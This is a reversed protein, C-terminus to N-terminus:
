WSSTRQGPRYLSKRHKAVIGELGMQGSLQFFAKGQGEIHECLKVRPLDPLVKPLLAKRSELPVGCLDYGDLYLVDFVYYALQGGHRPFNQLWEFRAIGREDLVVLEGDLITDRGVKKLCEVVGRFRGDFLRLNRSYFRVGDPQIEAVARYGDWKVEFFWDSGDFASPVLTAAMPKVNRPM